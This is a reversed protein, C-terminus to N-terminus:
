RKSGQDTWARCRIDTLVISPRAQFLRLRQQQGRSIVEFGSDGSSAGLSRPHGRDDAILVKKKM